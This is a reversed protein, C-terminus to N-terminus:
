EEDSFPLEPVSRFYMGGETKKRDVRAQEWLGSLVIKAHLESIGVRRAIWRPASWERTLTALIQSKLDDATM